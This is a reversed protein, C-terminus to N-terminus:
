YQGPDFDIPPYGCRTVIQNYYLIDDKNKDTLTYQGLAVLNLMRTVALKTQYAREWDSKLDDWNKKQYPFSLITKANYAEQTM